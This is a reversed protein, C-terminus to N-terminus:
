SRHDIHAFRRKIERYKTKNRKDMMFYSTSIRLALRCAAARRARGPVGLLAVLGFTRAGLKGSHERELGVFVSVAVAMGFREM